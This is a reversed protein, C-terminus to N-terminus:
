KRNGINPQHMYNYLAPPQQEYSIRHILKMSQLSIMQYYSVWNLKSLITLTNMKYSGIGLIRHSCKNLLVNLTNLQKCNLNMMNEICYNFVSM